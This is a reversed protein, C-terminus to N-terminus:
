TEDFVNCLETLNDPLSRKLQQYTLSNTDINMSSNDACNQIQTSNHNKQMANEVAQNYSGPFTPTVNCPLHDINNGGMTGQDFGTMVNNNQKGYSMLDTELISHLITNSQGVNLSPLSWTGNMTQQCISTLDISGDFPFAAGNTNPQEWNANHNNTFNNKGNMMAYLLNMNALSEESNLRTGILPSPDVRSLPMPMMLHFAPEEHPMFSGRSAIDSKKARKISLCLNCKTRMFNQHFYCGRDPHSPGQIQRFGWNNLSRRFSNYQATAFFLPLLEQALREKNHIRFCRGHNQWSIIAQHNHLEAFELVQFLKVPFSRKTKQLSSAAEETRSSSTPHEGEQNTGFAKRTM